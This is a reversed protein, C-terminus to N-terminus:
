MEMSDKGSKLPGLQLWNVQVILKTYIIMIVLRVCSLYVKNDQLRAGNSTNSLPLSFGPQGPCKSVLCVV